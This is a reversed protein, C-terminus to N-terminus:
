SKGKTLEFQGLGVVLKISTSQPFIFSAGLRTRPRSCMLGTRVPSSQAIQALCEMTGHTWDKNYAMGGGSYYKDIDLNERSM